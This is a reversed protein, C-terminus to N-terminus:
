ENSTRKERNRWFRFLLITLLIARVSLSLTLSFCAGLLGLSETLRYSCCICIGLAALDTCLLSKRKKMPIFLCHFFSNVLLLLANILVPSLLYMYDLIQPGFVLQFFFPGLLKGATLAAVSGVGILAFVTGILKKLQDDENKLLMTSIRPAISGWVGSGLTSFVVTVISITSFFGLAESGYIREVADRPIYVMVSDLLSVLMLPVAANAVSQIGHFNLAREEQPTGWLKRVDFALFCTLFVATMCLVAIPLRCGALLCVTFCAAPLLGRLTYSIAVWQFQERRQMAGLTVDACCEAIKYSMMAICCLVVPTSYNLMCLAACSLVIAAACTLIRLAYYQGDTYNGAVDSVQM